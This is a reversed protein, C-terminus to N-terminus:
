TVMVGDEQRAGRPDGDATITGVTPDWRQTEVAGEAGTAAERMARVAAAEVTQIGKRGTETETEEMYQPQGLPVAGGANRTEALIIIEAIGAVGTAGGSETEGAEMHQPQGLPVAGGANRTGALTIIEATGAVGTAIGQSGAPQATEAPRAEAVRGGAGNGM